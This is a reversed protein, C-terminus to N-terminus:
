MFVIMGPGEEKAVVHFFNCEGCKQAQQGKAKTGSTLEKTYWCIRGGNRGSNFGDFREAKSVSCDERASKECKRFDWCNCKEM